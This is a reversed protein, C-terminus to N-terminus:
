APTRARLRRGLRELLDAADSAAALEEVSPADTLLGMAEELADVHAEYDGSSLALALRVPDHDPHGFAVPSQPIVLSMALRKAGMEPAAHLLAAGPAVVMYPGYLQIMEKMAGVYSPWIAGIGLLLAGAQEVVEEWSGAPEGIRIVEPSLLEPMRLRRGLPSSVIPGPEGPVLDLRTCIARLDESSLAASVPVVPLGAMWDLPITSIVADAGSLLDPDRAVDFASTVGLIELEPLSLELRSRLNRATALHAGCILWVRRRKRAPRLRRLSTGLHEAVLGMVRASPAYGNQLLLPRLVRWVFGHLADSTEPAAPPAEAGTPPAAPGPAAGALELAICEILERDRILGPQLYRAAERALRRAMEFAAEQPAPRDRDTVRDAVFGTWMADALCGLVYRQESEPLSQQIEAAIEQIVVRAAEVEDEVLEAEPSEQREDILHGELVRGLVLAIHLILGIRAEDVFRGGLRRELLTTLQEARRLDLRRLYAAAERLFAANTSSQQISSLDPVVCAAVLIGQTLNATLLGITARRWNSEDGVVSLGRGRRSTLRLGRGEMWARVQALDRFLSTRSVGLDERLAAYPVPDSSTLFRLSLLNSRDPPELVLDQDALSRLEGLLADRKAGPADVLLGLRPKRTMRVGRTRLWPDISRWCYRVQFPTLSFRSAVEAASLPEGVRLLYQLVQKSRGTLTSGRVTM